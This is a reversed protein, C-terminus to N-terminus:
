KKHKAVYFSFNKTRFTQTNLIKGLKAALFGSFRPWNLQHNKRAVRIKLDGIFYSTLFFLFIRAWDRQPAFPTLLLSKPRYINYLFFLWWRPPAPTAPSFLFSL